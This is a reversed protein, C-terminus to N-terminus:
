AAARSAPKRTPEVTWHPPLAIKEFSFQDQAVKTFTYITDGTYDTVFIRNGDPSIDLGGWFVGTFGTFMESVAGTGPNVRLLRDPAGDLVLLDGTTPDIAIGYPEAIPSSTTVPTLTPGADLRYITGSATARPTSWTSRRPASPWM